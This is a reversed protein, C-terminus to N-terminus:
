DNIPLALLKSLGEAFGIKPNRIMQLILNKMDFFSQLIMIAENSFCMM